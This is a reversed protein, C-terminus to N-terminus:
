QAAITESASVATTTGVKTRLKAVGAHLNETLLHITVRHIFMALVCRALNFSLKALFGSKAAGYATMGEDLIVM